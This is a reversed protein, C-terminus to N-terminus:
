PVLVGGEVYGGGGGGQQRVLFGCFPPFYELKVVKKSKGTKLFVLAAFISAPSSTSTWSKSPDNSKDFPGIFSIHSKKGLARM